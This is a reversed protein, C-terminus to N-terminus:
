FLEECLKYFLDYLQTRANSFISQDSFMNQTLVLSNVMKSLFLAKSGTRDLHFGPLAMAIVKEIMTFAEQELLLYLEEFDQDYPIESAFMLFLKREPSTYLIKHIFANALIACVEEKSLPASMKVNKDVFGYTGQKMLAFLIEKTSGYYHYFGGKSLSTNAIIDEMTTNKYGKTLFLELAAKHIEALREEKTKRNYVGM